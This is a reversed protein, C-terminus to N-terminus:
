SALDPFLLKLYADAAAEPSFQNARARLTAEDHKKDLARTIAAAFEEINGCPVLEGFKGGDLIESPGSPCDTSVVPLGFSLAEVIVNGFGEYNSSFAFLDAGKYYRHPTRSFGPLIVKGKLGLNNVLSELHGRLEGEGLIILTCDRTHSVSAFARILMEHNKQPKLNGVSLIRAGSFESWLDISDVPTACDSNVAAPNYIVSFELNKLGSLSRLDCVIGQSVAVRADALPYLSLLTARMMPKKKPQALSLTNHDSIVIRARSRSLKVALIAIATTPWMAALVADPQETRLYRIFPRLISILRDASLDFIRCEKPISSFLEGTAKGLIFDVSFGMRIFNSALIIRM